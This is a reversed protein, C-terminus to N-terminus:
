FRFAVGMVPGQTLVDYKFLSVNEGAAYDIDLWRYGFELSSRRTLTVGITPFVQWTLDSGVGFGGIESYVQAHWRKGTDPTRLQLGVIPDFWTKSDDVRRQGPGNFRLAAQLTNVRGGFFVDAGPALRRLGYFAFAGQNMDASGTTGLPGPATGNAGLAMWIADGGVGWNGKRAVVLGMAGFQLNDLIKSFPVDVDLEQGAVATTGDMAAGMFYPSVTVHWGDAPAQAWVPGPGVLAILLLSALVACKRM